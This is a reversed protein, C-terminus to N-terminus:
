TRRRRSRGSGLVMAVGIVLFALGAWLTDLGPGAGTHPLAGSPPEDTPDDDTPADDDPAAPYDITILADVMQGASDRVSYIVPTPDGTFGNEPTFTVVGHSAITWSGEGEVVLTKVPDGTAPDLLRLTSADWAAAESPTDNELPELSVPEGLTGHRLDDAAKATVPPKAPPAPVTVTVIAVVTQGASDVATYSFHTVGSFGAPPTYVPLGDVVVVQGETVAAVLVPVGNVLALHAPTITPPQTVSTVTLLTGHDNDLVKIVVPTTPKTTASDDVAQPTVTLHVIATATQGAM